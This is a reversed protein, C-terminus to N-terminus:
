RFSHIGVTDQRFDKRRTNSQRLRARRSDENYQHPRCTHKRRTRAYRRHGVADIEKFSQICGYTADTLTNLIFEIGVEHDPIDKELVVKEENKDSFKLFSGELGVKELGGQAMVEGSTMDFLKYKISSSGCNLVLTKM